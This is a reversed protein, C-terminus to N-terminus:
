LVDSKLEEYFEPPVEAEFTRRINDTSDSSASPISIELSKAHLFLRSAKSTPNYIKDGLIPCGIYHLHVRLQHTRGSVPKLELLSKKETQELVQYYTQSAKGKPDVLFTTPHKYNRAIPLDILALSNKPHGAVVAVYTKHTKREQFQRRLMTQTAPNKALIVVGSTDRDLRHVLLGYDELTVERTFQGKAMSLMGAPKNIVLVNQDEYILMKKVDSPLEREPVTLIIEPTADDIIEYNPKKVVKGDVTVFGSKIFNQLTSRNYDPYKAVLLLDLRNRKKPADTEKLEVDGNKVRSM